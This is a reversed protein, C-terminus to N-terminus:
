LVEHLHEIIDSAMLSVPSRASAAADGARGHANVGAVAADFLSMGQGVLAAVIGTLVDGSGGTAMGPNGTDNIFLRQGDTVITQHGKLVVISNGDPDLHRALMSAMEERRQQVTGIDTNCLRAMEGPHPTLMCRPWQTEQESTGARDLDFVPLANLGDADIVCPINHEHILSQILAVWSEDFSTPGRSLGPGAAIVDPLRKENFIGTHFIRALAQAPYMVGNRTEPLPITTACPCLTAIYPQVSEPAAVTVLGAGARLAANATLSPAGLLGRSGGIVLVRGYDGKHSDLQRPPLLPIETIREMNM